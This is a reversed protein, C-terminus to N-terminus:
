VGLPRCDTYTVTSSSQFLWPLRQVWDWIPPLLPRLVSPTTEPTLVAQPPREHALPDPTYSVRARDSVVAKPLISPLSMQGRHHSSATGVGTM